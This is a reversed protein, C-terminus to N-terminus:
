IVGRMLDEYEMHMCLLAWACMLAVFAVKAAM